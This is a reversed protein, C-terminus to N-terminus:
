FPIEEMEQVEQTVEVVTEELNSFIPHFTKIQVLPRNGNLTIMNGTVLGQKNVNELLTESVKGIASFTLQTPTKGVASVIKLQGVARNYDKDPITQLEVSLIEVSLVLNNIM